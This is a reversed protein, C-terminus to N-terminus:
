PSSGADTDGPGTRRLHDALRTIGADIESANLAAYGLVLGAAPPRDLYFPTVPYVGVGAQEARAVIEEADEPARNRFWALLHLGANAGQVSIADGFERELARLLAVRRQANRKRTRRLHREFHGQAVFETVVDQQLSATHRDSLYKLTRFVEILAKPLVLYGLRLAPFLIKSLTGVYIVRGNRDLSQMAEIPRGEYRYESDYDDEIVYSGHNAAWALLALRRALPMIAGTPFQHSPTVYILRARRALPPLRDINLGEEDVLGPALRAGAALFVERAGLYNPNEIVVVDDPDILTRAILDLAQQSGNVILVQDPDCQVGRARRLYGTIVERLRLSGEPAGYMLPGAATARIHRALLKRWIDFPFAELDPLGYRFDYRIAPRPPRMVPSPAMRARTAYASCDYASADDAANAVRTREVVTHAVDPIEPAVFTGSGLQGVIYGEALLQEYAIVVTNRSVGTEHALSRTSSLRTHPPLAGSLIAGRLARYIQQYIPGHGDLSLLM